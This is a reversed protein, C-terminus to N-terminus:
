VTKSTKKGRKSNIKTESPPQPPLVTPHQTYNWLLLEVVTTGCVIESTFRGEFGFGKMKNILVPKM